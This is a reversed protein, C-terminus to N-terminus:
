LSKVILVNGQRGVVLAKEGPPLEEDSRAQWYSDRFKVRGEEYPKIANAVEVLSGVLDQDEDVNQVQSDGEFYKIFISRLFLIYVLSSIFFTLFAGVFTTIWGLYLGLSVTMAGMGLFIVIGGPLIAELVVFVGGILLWIMWGKM